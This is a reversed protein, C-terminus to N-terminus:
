SPEEWRDTVTDEVIVGDSLRVLRQAREAIRPDHTVMLVTRGSAHLDDIIRLIEEGTTSDLNGTPEDALLLLPDNVLARAIAVRQSEGGSLEAPRHHSRDTLGVMGLVELSKEHRRKRPVGAYFLPVEVNELVTLQPILQFSQFVFGIDRNRIESLEDDDLDSVDGGRLRYSGETPRDLCGLINMLTSKGSGSAGVLAVSQREELRFDLDKLVHLAARGEGYYKNVRDLEILPM